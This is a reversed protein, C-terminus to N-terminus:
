RLMAEVDVFADKDPDYARLAVAQMDYIWGHLQLTGADLKEGVVPYEALHSLSSLVSEEVARTLRAEGELALDKMPTISREIDTLWERLETMGAPLTAAGHLAAKIGGCGTHGCVVLHRVGLPGLAYEIAAGVSSDAHERPPVYAAVNRVVFIEGPAAGTLLEPVVRSDSCGIYLALPYQGERALRILSERKDFHDRKFELHGHIFRDPM